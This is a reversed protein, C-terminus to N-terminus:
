NWEQFIKIIEYFHHNMTTINQPFNNEAQWTLYHLMGGIYFNSLVIDEITKDVTLHLISVLAEFLADFIGSDADMFLNKIIPKNENIFQNVKQEKVEYVDDEHVINVTWVDVIWWKLFRYKDTFHMYFAARSVLAEHCIDRVTVKKFSNRGLLSVMADSLAKETKINRLDRGGIEASM